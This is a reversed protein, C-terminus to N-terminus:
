PAISFTLKGPCVALKVSNMTRPGTVARHDDHDEEVITPLPPPQEGRLSLITYALTSGQMMGRNTFVSKPAMLKNLRTNTLLM